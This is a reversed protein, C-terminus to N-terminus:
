QITTSDGKRRARCMVCDVRREKLRPKKGELFEEVDGDIVSVYMSCLWFFRKKLQYSALLGNVLLICRVFDIRVEMKV